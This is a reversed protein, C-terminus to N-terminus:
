FGHFDSIQSKSIWGLTFSKMTQLIAMVDDDDDYLLARYVNKSTDSDTNTM